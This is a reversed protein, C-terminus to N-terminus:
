LCKAQEIVQNSLTEDKTPRYEASGRAEEPLVLDDLVVVAPSDRERALVQPVLQDPLRLRLGGLRDAHDCERRKISAGRHVGKELLGEAIALFFRCRHRVFVSHSCQGENWERVNGFSGDTRPAVEAFHLRIIRSPSYRIASQLGAGRRRSSARR